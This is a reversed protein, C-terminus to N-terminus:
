GLVRGFALRSTGKRGFWPGFVLVFTGIVELEEYRERTIEEALKDEYANDLMRQLEKRRTELQMLSAHYSVQDNEHRERLAKRTWEIVEEDVARLAAFQQKLTDEVDKETAWHEKRAECSKTNCHGYWGGKQPEWTIGNGCGDCFFVGKFLPNHKNYKPPNKRQMKLQVAEFLDRSILQEQRGNDYEVGKWVNIGIYFPNKLLKTIHSRALPRGGVQKGDERVRGLKTRLGAAKMEATVTTLSASPNLYAEFMKVILPAVDRDIVHIKHGENGITKYGLPPSGPLWGQALKEKVGKDVEEKLNDIYNKAFIVRIGWNLTEQSRSNKHLVLNDKVFHIQREEDEELWEDVMVVDKFNRVLRDVKEVVIVKIKKDNVYDMMENFIKRQKPKSATETIPFERMVTYGKDLAYSELLKSQAPLSYGTLEQDKGSVRPNTVCVKKTISM